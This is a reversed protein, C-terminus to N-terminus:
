RDRCAKTARYQRGTIKICLEPDFQFPRFIANACAETFSLVASSNKTYSSDQSCVQDAHKALVDINEGNDTCELTGLKFGGPLFARCTPISISGQLPGWSGWLDLEFQSQTGIKIVEDGPLGGLRLQDSSNNKNVIKPLSRDVESGSNSSGGCSTLFAVFCPLLSLVMTRLPVSM